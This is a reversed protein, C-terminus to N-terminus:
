FAQGRTNKDIRKSLEKFLVLLLFFCVGIENFFLTLIVVSPTVTNTKRMDQYMILTVVINLVYSPTYSLFTYLTTQYSSWESRIEIVRFLLPIGMGLLIELVLFISLLVAYKRILRVLAEDIEQETLDLIENAM